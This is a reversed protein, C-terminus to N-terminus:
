RRLYITSPDTEPLERLYLGHERTVRDIIAVMQQTITASTKRDVAQSPAAQITISQNNSLLFTVVACGNLGTLVLTCLVFNWIGNKM